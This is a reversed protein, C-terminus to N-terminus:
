PSFPECGDTPICYPGLPIDSCGFGPQWSAFGCSFGAPCQDPAGPEECAVWCIADLADGACVSGDGGCFQNGGITDDGQDGDVGTAVSDERWASVILTDGDISVSRGFEDGTGSNSAKLYAQEVWTTGSRVFVYAAGADQASNDASNGNVGNAGSDERPAGVVLTDGDIAVSSGFRDGDDLTSSALKAQQVWSTGSAVFVYVAGAQGLANPDHLPAGVVLTTPSVDIAAGFTDSLALDNPDPDIRALQQTSLQASAPLALALVFFGSWSRIM